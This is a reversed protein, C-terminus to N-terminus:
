VSDYLVSLFTSRFLPIGERLHRSCAKDKECSFRFIISTFNISQKCFGSTEISAHPPLFLLLRKLFVLVLNPSLSLSQSFSLSLAMPLFALLYVSLSFSHFLLNFLVCWPRIFQQLMPAVEQPCVYGLRGITIALTVCDRNYLVLRWGLCSRILPSSFVFLFLCVFLCVVWFCFEVSDTYSFLCSKVLARWLGLSCPWIYFIVSFFM